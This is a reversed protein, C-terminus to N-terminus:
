RFFCWGGIVSVYQGLRADGPLRFDGSVLAAVPQLLFDAIIDVRVHEIGVQAQGGHRIVEANGALHDTRDAAVGEAFREQLIDAVALDLPGGLQQLGGVQRKFFDGLLAAEGVEQGEPPIELGRHADIGAVVPFPFLIM